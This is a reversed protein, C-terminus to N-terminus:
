FLNVGKIIRYRKTISRIQHSHITMQKHHVSGKDIVNIM